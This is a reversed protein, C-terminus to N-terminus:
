QSRLGLSTRWDLVCVTYGSCWGGAPHTYDEPQGECGIVLCPPLIHRYHLQNNANGSPPLLLTNVARMLPVDILTELPETNSRYYSEIIRIVCMCAYEVLRQDSYGLVNRIMPFVDRVHNFNEVALNRCCNSAAQLATRQVHTSFFDLYNLLASLGGERV